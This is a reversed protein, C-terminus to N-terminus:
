YRSIGNNEIVYGEDKLIEILWNIKIDNIEFCLDIADEKIWSRWDDTTKSTGYSEISDIYKRMSSQYDRKTM